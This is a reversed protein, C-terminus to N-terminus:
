SIHKPELDVRLFPRQHFFSGNANEFGDGSDPLGFFFRAADELFRVTDYGFYGVLGGTFRPLDADEHVQYRQQFQTIWELPDDVQEEAVVDGDVETTVTRKNIKIVTRCPLGIISYRGWKEGGEMSEFLFAHHQGDSIKAYITLPTDLDAIITRHVPVLGSQKAMNVFSEQDPFNM